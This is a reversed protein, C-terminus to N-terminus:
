QPDTTAEGKNSTTEAVAARNRRKVWYLQLRWVILASLGAWAAGAAWGALVDTPWHVGLYVRSVGVLVTILIAMAMVFAAIRRREQIRALLVGLTLYVTAALMSHGSPFSTYYVETYHPVLDPRPRDFGAKLAMNLLYGGCVALVVLWAMTPRRLLLLYITVGGTVLSLIATGGLATLDRFMEEVAPSGLPDSLDAPNRLALLIREDFAHTDGESVEDALGIFAWLGIAILLGALLYNLEVRNRLYTLLEVGQGVWTEMRTKFQTKLDTSNVIRGTDIRLIM